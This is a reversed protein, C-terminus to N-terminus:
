YYKTIQKASYFILIFVVGVGLGYVLNGIQKKLWSVIEIMGYASLFLVFPLWYVYIRAYGVVGTILTLIMPIFFVSAFVVRERIRKLRWIGIAFFLYLWLGWPAVLLEAIEGIRAGDLSQPQTDKGYKLQEYIVLFYVAILAFM